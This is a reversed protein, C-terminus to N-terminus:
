AATFPWSTVIHFTGRGPVCVLEPPYAASPVSASTKIALSLCTLVGHEFRSDCVSAIALAATKRMDVISLQVRSPLRRRTLVCASVGDQACVSHSPDPTAAERIIGCCTARMLTSVPLRTPGVTLPLTTRFRHSHGSRLPPPRAIGLREAHLHQNPFALGRESLGTVVAVLSRRALANKSVQIEDESSCSVRRHWRPM